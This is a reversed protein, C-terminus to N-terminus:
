GKLASIVAYALIAAVGAKALQNTPSDEQKKEEIRQGQQKQGEILPIPIADILSGAEDVWLELRQGVISDIRFFTAGETTIIQKGAAVKTAGDWALAGTAPGFFSSGSDVRILFPTPPLAVRDWSRYLIDIDKRWVPWRTFGQGFLDTAASAEDSSFLGHIEASRLRAGVPVRQRAALTARRRASGLGSRPHAYVYPM